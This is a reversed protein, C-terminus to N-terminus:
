AAINVLLIHQQLTEHMGQDNGSSSMLRPMLGERKNDKLSNFRHMASFLTWLEKVLPIISAIPFPYSIVGQSQFANVFVM